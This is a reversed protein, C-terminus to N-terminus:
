CALDAAHSLKEALKKVLPIISISKDTKTAPDRVRRRKEVYTRSFYLNLDGIGGEHIRGGPSREKSQEFVTKQIERLYFIDAYGVAFADSTRFMVGLHLKGHRFKFDGAIPCPVYGPRFKDILDAPRLFVFSLTSFGPKKALESAITDIQNVYSASKQAKRPRDPYEVLRRLYSPKSPLDGITTYVRTARNWGDRGTQGTIDLFKERFAHFRALGAFDYSITLLCSLVELYNGNPKGEELILYLLKSLGDLENHATIMYSM